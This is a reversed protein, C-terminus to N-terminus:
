KTRPDTKPGRSRVGSNVAVEDSRRARPSSGKSTSLSTAPKTTSTKRVASRVAARVTPSRTARRVVDEDSAAPDAADEALAIASAREAIRTFEEERRRLETESSTETGIMENRANRHARIVEDLKLHIAKSDRNQSAQIVFVMLFTIITTATNIVLQWTESFGFFPGSAAWLVILAVASALVLPSGVATTLRTALRNFRDRLSTKAVGQQHTDRV